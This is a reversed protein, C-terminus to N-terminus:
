LLYEHLAADLYMDFLDFVILALYRVSTNWSFNQTRGVQFLDCHLISFM